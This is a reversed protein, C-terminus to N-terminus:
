TDDNNEFVDYQFVNLKNQKDMRRKFIYLSESMGSVGMVRGIQIQLHGTGFENLWQHFRAKRKNKEDINLRDLEEKIYGNEIPEYIYKNIFKGYYQPRNRSTTKENEYLRDLEIFFDDPFRKSWSQIGDAIYQPLLLRLADYKRNYQFGTAEDILSVIGIEALATQLIESQEALKMQSSVLAGARRAELYIGCMKPLIRADYGTEEKEGDIYTIPNTRCLLDKNIFPKLNKAAIFPPMNTGDIELRNNAGKRSRGFAKFISSSSLVRTNEQDNLVACDLEIDGIILISRCTAKPLENM